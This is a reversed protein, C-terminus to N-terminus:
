VAAKEINLISKSAFYSILFYSVPYFLFVNVYIVNSGGDLSLESPSFSFPLAAYV